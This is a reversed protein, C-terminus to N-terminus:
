VGDSEYDCLFVNGLSSVHKLQQAVSGAVDKATAASSLKGSTCFKAWPDQSSGKAGAAVAVSGATVPAPVVALQGSESGAGYDRLFFSKVLGWGIHADFMVVGGVLYDAVFIDMSDEAGGTRPPSPPRREQATVVPLPKSPGPTAAKAGLPPKSTGPAASKATGRVINVERRPDGVRAFTQCKQSADQRDKEMVTSVVAVVNREYCFIKMEHALRSTRIDEGTARPIPVKRPWRGGTVKLM